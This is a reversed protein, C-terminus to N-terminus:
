VVSKRDIGIGMQNGDLFFTTEGGNEACFRHSHIRNMALADILERGRQKGFRVRGVSLDFRDRDRIMGTEGNAHLPM